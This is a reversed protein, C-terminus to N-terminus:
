IGFTNYNNDMIRSIKEAFREENISFIFEAVKSIQNSFLNRFKTAKDCIEKIENSNLPLSNSDECDFSIYCSVASCLAHGRKEISFKSFESLAIELDSKKVQNNM